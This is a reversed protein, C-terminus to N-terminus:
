YHTLSARSAYIWGAVATATGLAGGLLAGAAVETWVRGFKRIVARRALVLSWPAAAALAFSTLPMDAYHYGVYLLAYWLTTYVITTGRDPTDHLLLIILVWAGCAATLAGALQALVISNSFLLLLALLTGAVLFQGITVYANTIERKADILGAAIMPMAASLMIWAASQWRDWENAVRTSLIGGVTGAFLALYLAPKFRAYAKPVPVLGVLAAAVAYYVIWHKAEVPPFAPTGQTAVYAFAFGAGLAVGGWGEPAYWAWQHLRHAVALLVLAVVAPVLTGALFIDVM